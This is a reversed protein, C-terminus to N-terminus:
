ASYGITADGASVDVHLTHESAPDTRVDITRDGASVTGSLLYAADPLDLVADGASVQVRTSTPAEGTVTGTFRGASVDVSITSPDSTVVTADGASVTATLSTSAGVFTLSGASVDITADTVDGDFRIEGASVNLHASVEGELSSPLVLEGVTRARGFSPWFWSRDDDRVVLRDGDVEFTWGRATRWGTTRVDLTAESVPAFTVTLDGVSVDIDVETVGDVAASYSDDRTGGGGSLGFGLAQIVLGAVLLAGLTTVLVSVWRHRHPDTPTPADETTLTDTSM